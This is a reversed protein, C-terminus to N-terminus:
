GHLERRRSEAAAELVNIYQRAMAQWSFGLAYARAAAALQRRHDGDDVFRALAAALGTVDESDALVVGVEPTVIDAAGTTTATVVPLGSALAELVVLGFPEYRSPFVFLDTSRMLAPMDKQFGLFHVRDALGLSTAVAPWTTGEHRGAVALHLKPVGRLSQLVTRLNKRESKLDGAFLAIVEGEPLGFRSREAPGPHFEEPDVGALITTIRNEDIGAQVLERRITESVAVVRRTRHFAGQELSVNLGSYLRAYFSRPTRRLRWPHYPSSLWSHHVFHVANVDTDGWTSFGNALLADCGGHNRGIQRYLRWACIQDKLLRSPVLPLAAAVTAKAGAQVIAPDVTESFLRVEHGQRLAEAAIELNVRAQGDNFGVSRTIIGIRM